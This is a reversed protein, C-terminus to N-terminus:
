IIEASSNQLFESNYRLSPLATIVIGLPSNDRPLPPGLHMDIGTFLAYFIIFRM